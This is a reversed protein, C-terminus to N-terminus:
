FTGNRTEVKRVLYWPAFFTLPFTAAEVDNVDKRKKSTEMQLTYIYLTYQFYSYYITEPRWKKPCNWGMIIITTFYRKWWPPWFINGSAQLRSRLGWKKRMPAWFRFNKRFPLSRKVCSISKQGFIKNRRLFIFYFSKGKKTLFQFKDWFKVGPFFIFYFDIAGRAINKM